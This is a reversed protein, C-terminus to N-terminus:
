KSNLKTCDALILISPHSQVITPPNTQEIIIATYHSL